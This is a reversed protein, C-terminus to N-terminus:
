GLQADHNMTHGEPRLVIACTVLGLVSGVVYGMQEHPVKRCSGFRGDTRNSPDDM